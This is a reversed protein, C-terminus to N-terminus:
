KKKKKKKPKPPKIQKPTEEQEEDGFMAGEVEEEAMEALPHVGPSGDDLQQDLKEEFKNKEFIYIPVGMSRMIISQQLVSLLASFTWYIVLGSSFKAMIFTLFFPFIRMMDRQMKDQPPPNLQKQIIMAVLM